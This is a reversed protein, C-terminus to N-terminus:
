SYELVENEECIRSFEQELVDILKLAADKEKKSLGNLLDSIAGEPYGHKRAPRFLRQRMEFIANALKGGNQALKFDEKDEPLNFSLIAKM